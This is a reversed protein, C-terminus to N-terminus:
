AGIRIREVEKQELDVRFFLDNRIGQEGYHM